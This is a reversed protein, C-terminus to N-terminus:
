IKSGISCFNRRFDVNLMVVNMQAIDKEACGVGGAVFGAVFKAVFAAGGGGLSSVAVKAM